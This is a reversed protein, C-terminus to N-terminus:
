QARRMHWLNWDSAWPPVRRLQHLHYWWRALRSESHRRKTHRYTRLRNRTRQMRILDVRSSRTCSLNPGRLVRHRQLGQPIPFCTCHHDCAKRRRLRPRLLDRWAQAKRCRDITCPAHVCNRWIHILKNWVPGQSKEWGYQRWEGVYRQLSRWVFGNLTEIATHDIREGDTGEYSHHLRNAWRGAPQQLRRYLYHQVKQTELRKCEHSLWNSKSARCRKHTDDELTHYM